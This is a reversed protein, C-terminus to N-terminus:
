DDFEIQKGLRRKKGNKPMPNWHTDEGIQNEELGLYELRDWQGEQIYPITELTRQQTAPDPKLSPVDVTGYMFFM